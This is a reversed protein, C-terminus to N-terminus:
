KPNAPMTKSKVRCIGFGIPRRRNGPLNPDPGWIAQYTDICRGSRQLWGFVGLMALWWITMVIPMWRPSDAAILGTPMAAVALALLVYGAYKHVYEFAIRRPTMSFHDGPWEQPPRRKRTFPDVPGGHTGRMWASLIQVLVLAAVAWGLIAHVSHWPAQWGEAVLACVLGAIVIVAVVHGWRRHTVFWFPNDLQDPWRQGPTVKFFRAVLIILPMMLGMSLVMLRGHWAFSTSILHESSGSLPTLLWRVGCEIAAFDSPGITTGSMM